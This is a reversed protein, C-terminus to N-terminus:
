VIKLRAIQYKHGSTRDSFYPFIRFGKSDYNSYVIPVLIKNLTPMANFIKKIYGLDGIGDGHDGSLHEVGRPHYHIFGLFDLNNEEWERKLVENLFDVDPDYGYSFNNGNKDFVFKQVMYNIPNGLLIGGSEPKFTGVTELIHEYASQFYVQVM